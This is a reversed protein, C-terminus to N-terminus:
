GLKQSAAAFEELAKREEAYVDHQTLLVDYASLQGALYEHRIIFTRDDLGTSRLNIKEIATQARLTRIYQLQLESYTAAVPLEAETFSYLSFENELLVTM